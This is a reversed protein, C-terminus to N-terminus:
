LKSKLEKMVSLISEINVSADLWSGSNGTKTTRAAEACAKVTEDIAELQAQKIVLKIDYSSYKQDFKEGWFDNYYETAKKM